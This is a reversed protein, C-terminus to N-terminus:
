LLNAIKQQLGTAASPHISRIPRSLYISLRAFHHRVEIDQINKVKKSLTAPPNCTFNAAPKSEEEEGLQRRAQVGGGGRADLFM